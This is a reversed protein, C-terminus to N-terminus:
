RRDGGPPGMDAPAVPALDMLSQADLNRIVTEGFDCALRQRQSDSLQRGPAADSPAPGLALALLTAALATARRM